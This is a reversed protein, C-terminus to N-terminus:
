YEGDEECREYSFYGSHGIICKLFARAPADLIFKDIRIEFIKTHGNPAVSLGSASLDHMENLLPGILLESLLIVTLYKQHCFIKLLIHIIRRLPIKSSSLIQM